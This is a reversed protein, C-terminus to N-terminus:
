ERRLRYFRPEGRKVYGPAGSPLDVAEDDILSWAPFAAQIDERSAGRPLLTRRAPKWSLLLLTAGPAAAATAGRGEEARQEDSLEDHFTLFDLVLQFGSGVGAADLTTVDGEIFEVEVGAQRARERARRLAKPVFDVGTVQWGRQALSVAWIGSGCGLDLARGYPPERGEEERAFLDAYQGGIQPHAMQEWPTFGVAYLIRYALSVHREEIEQRANDCQAVPLLASILRPRSRSHVPSDGAAAVRSNRQRRDEPPQRYM